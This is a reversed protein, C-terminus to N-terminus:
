RRQVGNVIVASNDSIPGSKFDKTVRLTVTSAGEIKGGIKADECTGEVNSQGDIKDGVILGGTASFKLSSKGDIKGKITINGHIRLGSLDVRSQGDINGDVILDRCDGTVTLDENDIKPFVEDVGANLSRRNTLKPQAFGNSPVFTLVDVVAPWTKLKAELLKYTAGHTDDGDHLLRAGTDSLKVLESREPAFDGLEDKHLRGRGISWALTEYATLASYLTTTTLKDTTRLIKNIKQENDGSLSTAVGLAYLPHTYYMHVTTTGPQTFEYYGDTKTTVITPPTRSDAPELMVKVNKIPAGKEDFVHGTIQQKGSPDAARGSSVIFGFAIVSIAAHLTKM